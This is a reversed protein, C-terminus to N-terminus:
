GFVRWVRAAGEEEEEPCEEGLDGGECGGEERGGCGRGVPVDPAFDRGGWSVEGDCAGLPLDCSM